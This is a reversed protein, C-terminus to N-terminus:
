NCGVNKLTTLRRCPLASFIAWCNFPRSCFCSFPNLDRSGMTHGGGTVELLKPKLLELHSQSGAGFSFTSSHHLFIGLMLRPNRCPCACVCAHMYFSLTISLQPEHFPSFCYGFFVQLQPAWCPHTYCM